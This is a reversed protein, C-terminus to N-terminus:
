KGAAVARTVLEASIMLSVLTDGPEPALPSDVTGVMVTGDKRLVCLPLASTGHEARFAALDFEASLRTRKVLPDGGALLDLTAFTWDKGFLPRGRDERAAVEHKGEKTSLFPLQYCEKRGFDEVFHRCALCNVEDNPTVALLKGLGAYNIEERTQEALASGHLAPLNRMRCGRVNQWDTDVLFVAVGSERLAQALAQVWADAGVFLIGQPNAQVLGLWRALPAAAAGYFLVTAFVMLFTVPVIQGAQPFGAVVLQLSLMSAISAAVIGRPAMFALFIREPWSLASGVVSVLVSLPRVLGIMIAVFAASRGNLQRLEDLDLRAALVVFLSSILLVTLTEKFAVLHRIAVWNQNALVVGMVTVALLGSEAQVINAVVLAAFMMALSLPNHLADPIWFRAIALSLLLAAVVGVLAGVVLMSELEHLAAGLSADHSLAPVLSFVAVALMAGLPDVIIGEWKLLTSASGRLKLHRLMPNIVTPGTVVLIAGLVGAFPWEFGLVYRAALATAVFAVAVGLTALRLFVTGIQRLERLRLSLGGEYLIIAVALSVLPMLLEGFLEDPELAGSIPGALLGATLLMVISPLRLRWAVWQAMVGLVFIAVIELTTRDPM